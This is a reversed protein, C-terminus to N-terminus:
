RYIVKLRGWSVPLVPTSTQCFEITLVLDDSILRNPPRWLYCGGEDFCTIGSRWAKGGAYVDAPSVLLGWHGRCWDQAAFFYNGRRPLAFPPDFTWEMKIHHIGDGFPVTIVPGDLVKRDVQPVGASDAETIWLKLNGGYPTQVADRWVAVSRILTDVAVFVQGGAEGCRLGMRTTSSALSTDVAVTNVECTDARSVTEHCLAVALAGWFYCVVVV